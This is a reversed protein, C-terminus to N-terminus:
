KGYIVNGIALENRLGHITTDKNIFVTEVGIENAWDGLQEAVLDYTMITHHCGGATLWAEVGTHFDPEPTWFATAVPLNPMPKETHKCEVDNIILRFRDGLDILSSAIAKGEKATFVLRAPDERNGLGLPCVRISAKGDAISPCVELMHTELVGEKGPVLNYTYDEMFSAGKADKVGATMLKIIRMLGATKWDGEAAFGYGKWMLRQMALGPLQQLTGLDQFNTVICNYKRDKLLKEIGLEQRAQVAVHARFEAEDRGETMINYMSYYEDVLAEVDAAAVADTYEAADAIPYTDVEWGFKLQAEVKDGETDAVNRMNDSLRLIRVHSSEMVGVATRMWRGIKDQVNKDAWHGVITKRKKNMRTLMYGFERDGHASQNINIFDMDLTEYPIEENFQTAFHLLPKRLEKLGLMWSKAPSFMHMWAIVGACNEDANAANFTARINENTLLTPKLVIEYPINECGNLEKTIKECHETVANIEKESYLDVSGPCFWFTYKKQSEM